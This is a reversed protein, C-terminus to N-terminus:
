RRYPDCRDLALDLGHLRRGGGFLRLDQQLQRLTRRVLLLSDFRRAVRASCVCQGLYDMAM